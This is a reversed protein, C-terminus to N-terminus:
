FLHIVKSGKVPVEKGNEYKYLYLSDNTLRPLAGGFGPNPKTYDLM